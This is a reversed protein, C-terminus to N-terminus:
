ELNEIVVKGFHKGSELYQYAEEADDFGFVRDIVPRIRHEEIFINMRSFMSRNGVYIGNIDIAKSIIPFLSAPSSDFGTLVGILSIGGGAKVAKMSKELTGPGGVEIVHDVGTKDTFSYIKEEWNESEKYNIGTEAGLAEAQELKRDSSSTIYVKAGAAVGFQLAFISVGGTGLCLIDSGQELPRSREFLAQWATLAACPLTAAEAFGLHEPFSIVSHAPVVVFEALVGDCSGGRAAQHYKMDFPGDEWDRFFTLAVRDGTNWNTVESGVSVIEGAGDSLPIIPADGGSASKGKRMLLDRYNLSCARIKVLIEDAKPEPVECEEAILPGNPQLLYKKM